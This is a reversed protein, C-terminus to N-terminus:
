QQAVASSRLSVALWRGDRAGAAIQRGDCRWRFEVPIFDPPFLAIDVFQKGWEDTLWLRDLRYFALMEAKESYVPEVGPVGDVPLQWSEGRRPDINFLAGRLDAVAAGIAPGGRSGDLYRGSIEPLPLLARHGRQASTGQERIFRGAERMRMLSSFFSEQGSAALCCRVDGAIGPLGFLVMGALAIAV